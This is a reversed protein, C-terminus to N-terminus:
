SGYVKELADRTAPHMRGDSHNEDTQQKDCVSQFRMLPLNPEGSSEASREDGPITGAFDVALAKLPACYGLNELRLRTGAQNDVAGLSSILLNVTWMDLMLKGTTATAPIPRSLMGESDTMGKFKLGQVELVYTAAKM